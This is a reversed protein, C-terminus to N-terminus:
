RVKSCHVIEQGRATTCSLAWLDAVGLQDGQRDRLDDQLTRLLAREQTQGLLPESM